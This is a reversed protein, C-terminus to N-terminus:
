TKAIAAAAKAQDWTGAKLCAQASHDASGCGPCSHMFKCSPFTCEGAKQGSSFMRSYCYKMKPVKPTKPVKPKKPKPAKPTGPDSPAPQRPRKEPTAVSPLYAMTLQFDSHFKGVWDKANAAGRYKWMFEKCYKVKETSTGLESSWVLYLWQTFDPLRHALAKEAAMMALMKDLGLRFLHPTLDKETSNLQGGLGSIVLGKTLEVTGGGRTRGGLKLRAHEFFSPTLCMPDVCEYVLLEKLVKAEYDAKVDPLPPLASPVTSAPQTGMSAVQSKALFEMLTLLRANMAVLDTPVPTVVPLGGAASTQVAPAGQPVGAVVPIQCWEAAQAPHVLPAMAAVLAQTASDRPTDAVNAMGRMRCAVQLAVPSLGDWWRTALDQVSSSWSDDAWGDSAVIQRVIEHRRAMTSDGIFYLAKDAVTPGVSLATSPQTTTVAFLREAAEGEKQLFTAFEAAEGPEKLLCEWSPTSISAMRYHPFSHSPCM